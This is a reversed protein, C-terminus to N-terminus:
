SLTKLLEEGISTIVPVAVANGAQKYLRSDAQQPLLFDGPFGMFKFCENPTLKRIGFDTLVIPVNNGGTGMNATLTPCLGSKNERVYSRRWQYIVGKKVVGTKLGEFISSKETYYYKDEVREGINVIDSITTTLPIPKPFQFRNFMKKDKFGIIYVRERGQPVNYLSANLVSWKVFYGAATLTDLIVKFTHGKDHSILGKVNEFLVINPSIQEVINMLNFFLNGRTDNFGKRYGAVSFAQCPFGGTIVDVTPISSIPLTSIDGMYHKVTPNNLKFTETAYADLENAYVIQFGGGLELGKEIGGTGSFFGAVKM